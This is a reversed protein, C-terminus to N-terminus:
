LLKREAYPSPKLCRLSASVARRWGRQWAPFPASDWTALDLASYFGHRQVKYGRREMCALSAPDDDRVDGLLYTGATNGPLASWNPWCPQALAKGACPPISSWTFTCSGPRKNPFRQTMAYGAAMGQEDLAVIQEKISGAPLDADDRTVEDVTVPTASATASWNPSAPM